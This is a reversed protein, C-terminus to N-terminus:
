RKANDKEKLDDECLEELFSIIANIAKEAEVKENKESVFPIDVSDAMKKAFVDVKSKLANIALKIGFSKLWKIFKNM